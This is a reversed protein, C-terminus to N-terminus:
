STPVDADTGEVQEALAVIGQAGMPAMPFPLKEVDSTQHFLGYGVITTQIRGFLMGFAMM